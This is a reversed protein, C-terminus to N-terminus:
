EKKFSAEFLDNILHVHNKMVDLCQNVRVDRKKPDPETLCAQMTAQKLLVHGLRELAQLILREGKTVTDEM